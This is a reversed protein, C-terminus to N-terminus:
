PAIEMFRAIGLAWGVRAAPAFWRRFHRSVIRGLPRSRYNEMPEGIGLHDSHATYVVYEERLSPDSGRLRAVVNPSRLAELQTAVQIKVTVPLVFSMPRSEQMAKYLEDPAKGSGDCLKKVGEM